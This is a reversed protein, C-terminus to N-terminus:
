PANGGDPPAAGPHVGEVDTPRKPAEARPGEQRQTLAAEITARTRAVFDILLAQFNGEMTWNVMRYADQDIGQLAEEYVAVRAELAAVEDALARILPGGPKTRHPDTTSYTQKGEHKLALVGQNWFRGWIDSDAYVFRYGAVLVWDEDRGEPVLARLRDSLAENM